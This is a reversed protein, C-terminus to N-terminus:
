LNYKKKYKYYTPISVGLKRIVDKVPIRLFLLKEMDDKRVKPNEEM